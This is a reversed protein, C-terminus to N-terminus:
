QLLIDGIAFLYEFNNIIAKKLPFDLFILVKLVEREYFMITSKKSKIVLDIHYLM